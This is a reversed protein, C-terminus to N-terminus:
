SDPGASDFGAASLASARAAPALGARAQAPGAAGPLGLAQRVLYLPRQKVEEYIKGIYIGLVGLVLLQIGGVAALLMIVSAWGAVARSTFFRIYVVYVSYLFAVASLLAGTYVAAYLPISTFSVIGDLALHTMEFLGYKTHGAQRASATYPVGTARYGVWSTLGRLFRTRERIAGLADVVRRDLLRFDAAHFPVDMGTAKRFLRYFLSSTARKLFGAGKTQGRVTYVVDYGERWRSVLDRLLAPPHQLDGDMLVVADGSAVDMGATLATQHGFRRSLSLLKVRRDTGHLRTVRAATRDVSGDDVFVIEYDSTLGVMAEAVAQAMPEVNDEEDLVPVVVSLKM